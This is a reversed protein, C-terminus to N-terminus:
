RPGAACHVGAVEKQRTTRLPRFLRIRNVKRGLVVQVVNRQHPHPTAKGAALNEPRIPPHTEVRGLQRKHLLDIALARNSLNGLRHVTLGRLPAAQGVDLLESALEELRQPAAIEERHGQVRVRLALAITRAGSTTALRRGPADCSSRRGITMRDACRSCLLPCGGAFGALNEALARLQPSGATRGSFFCV